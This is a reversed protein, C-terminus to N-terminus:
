DDDGDSITDDWEADTLTNTESGIGYFQFGCDCRMKRKGHYRPCRPCKKMGLATGKAKRAAKRERELEASEENFAQAMLHM